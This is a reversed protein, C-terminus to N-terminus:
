ISTPFLQLCLYSRQANDMRRETPRWHTIGRHLRKINFGRFRSRCINCCMTYDKSQRDRKNSKLVVNPTKARNPNAKDQLLLEIHIFLALAKTRLFEKDIDEKTSEKSNLTEREKPEKIPPPIWETELFRDVAKQTIDRLNYKWAVQAIEFWLLGRRIHTSCIFDYREKTPTQLTVFQTLAQVARTLLNVQLDQQKADKAKEIFLLAQDEPREPDDYLNIRIQIRHKLPELYTKAFYENQDLALAKDLHLKAKALVDEIEVECIALEYHLNRRLELNACNIEELAVVARSFPKL